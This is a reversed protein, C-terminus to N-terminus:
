PSIYSVICGEASNDADIWFQSASLGGPASPTTAAAYPLVVAVLSANLTPAPITALVGVGTTKNAAASSCIYIKGINAEVQQFFITQAPIRTASVQVPTGATTVTIKGLSRWM